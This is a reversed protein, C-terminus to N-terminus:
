IQQLHRFEDTFPSQQLGCDVADLKWCNYYERWNEVMETYHEHKKSGKFNYVHFFQFISLLFNQM